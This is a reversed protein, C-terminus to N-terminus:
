QYSKLTHVGGFIRTVTTLLCLAAFGYALPAFYQPFVCFAVFLLITETGETIGGLYYFGKNPYAFNKIQHREAFIAYALFSAGTGMFSLILTVAALANDAPSAWAFAWVIASYFIFDLCIDLYAGVTTAGHRRALAGDLGDCIRNLSIFALAWMFYGLIICPLACLGLLFGILTVQNAKLKCRDLQKASWQTAPKIMALAMKDLM